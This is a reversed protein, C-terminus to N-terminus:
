HCKSQMCSRWCVGHIHTQKPQDAWTLSLIECLSGSIISKYKSRPSYLTWYCMFLPHIKGQPLLIILSLNCSNGSVTAATAPATSGATEGEGTPRHAPQQDRPRPSSHRRTRDQTKGAYGEPLQDADSGLEQEARGGEGAGGPPVGSFISLSSM